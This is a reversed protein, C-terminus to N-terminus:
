QRLGIRRYHEEKVDNIATRIDPDRRHWFQEIFQEKEDATVLKKFVDKEQDSIIYKVDEDLWKKFYDEEQENQQQKKAKQPAPAALGEVALLSVVLGFRILQIWLVKSKM